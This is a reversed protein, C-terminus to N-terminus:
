SNRSEQKEEILRAVRQLDEATDVGPGPPLAAEVVRIRIGGWLARLQELCESAELPCSTSSPYDRLFGVRYAYLGIHRLAQAALPLAETAQSFHERDWPIPARSFYLAYQDQTRVVKVVNPDHFDGAVDIPTCLTAIQADPHAALDGAVQDLLQPPMLPEDGQLNVVIVDAQWGKASVVESIRDTGSPHDPSTLCVQAGFEEAATKVREDDTAVIVEDAGSRCASEYVYQLLPRGAIERLPKGPLRSAGYRAPIVVKFSDTM